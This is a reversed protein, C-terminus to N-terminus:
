RVDHNKALADQHANDHTAESQAAVNLREIENDTLNFFPESFDSQLVDLRLSASSPMRRCRLPRSLGSVKPEATFDIQTTM